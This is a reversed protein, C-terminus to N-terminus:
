KGGFSPRPIKKGTTVYLRLNWLLYLENGNKSPSLPGQQFQFCAQIGRTESSLVSVPVAEWHGCTGTSEPLHHLCPFHVLALSGASTTRGTLYLNPEETQDPQQSSQDGPPFPIGQWATLSCEGWGLGRICLSTLVAVREGEWLLLQQLM